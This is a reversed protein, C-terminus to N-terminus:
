VKRHAQSEATDEPAHHTHIWESSALGLTTDKVLKGSMSRQIAVEELFRLIFCLELHHVGSSNPTSSRYKALALKESCM